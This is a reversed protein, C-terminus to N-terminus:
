IRGHVLRQQSGVVLVQSRLGSVESRLVEGHCAAAPDGVLNASCGGSQHALVSSVKGAHKTSFHPLLEVDSGPILNPAPRDRKDRVVTDIEREVRLREMPQPGLRRASRLNRQRKGDKLKVAHLPRDLLARLDPDSADNRDDSAPRISMQGGGGHLAVFPPLADNTLRGFLRSPQRRRLNRSRDLQFLKITSQRLVQQGADNKRLGFLLSPQSCDQSGSWGLNDKGNAGFTSPGVPFQPPKVFRSPYRRREAGGNQAGFGRRNDGRRECKVCQPSEKARRSFTSHRYGTGLSHSHSSLQRGEPVQIKRGGKGLASAS